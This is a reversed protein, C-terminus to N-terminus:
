TMELTTTIAISGSISRYVPCFKAHFEHVRTATAHPAHQDMKVGDHQAIESHVDFAIPADKAPLYALRYPGRIREIHVNARYAVSDSM